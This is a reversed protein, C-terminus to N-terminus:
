EPYEDPPEGLEVDLIENGATVMADLIASANEELWKRCQDDSWEPKRAKVDDIQWHTAAFKEVKKNKM